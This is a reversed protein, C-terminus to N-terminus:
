AKFVRDQSRAQTNKRMIWTKPLFQRPLPPRFDNCVEPSQVSTAIHKGCEHSACSDQKRAPPFAYSGVFTGLARTGVDRCLGVDDIWSRTTRQISLEQGLRSAGVGVGRLSNPSAPIFGGQRTDEDMGSHVRHSGQPPFPDIGGCSLEFASGKM